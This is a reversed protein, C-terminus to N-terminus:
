TARAPADKVTACQQKHQDVGARGRAVGACRLPRDETQVSPRATRGCAGRVAADFSRARQKRREPTSRARNARSQAQVAVRGHPPQQRRAATRLHARQHDLVVRAAVPQDRARLELFDDRRVVVDAERRVEGTRYRNVRRM